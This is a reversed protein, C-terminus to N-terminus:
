SAQITRSEPSEAVLAAVGPSGFLGNFSDLSFAAAVIMIVLDLAIEM